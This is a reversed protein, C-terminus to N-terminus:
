ISFLRDVTEREGWGWKSGREVKVGGGVVCGRVRQGQHLSTCTADIKFGIDQFLMSSEVLQFVRAKLM